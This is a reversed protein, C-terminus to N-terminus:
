PDFQLRRDGGGISAGVHCYMLRVAQVGGVRRSLCSGGHACYAGGDPGSRYIDVPLKQGPRWHNGIDDTISHLVIVQCEPVSAAHSTEALTLSALTFLTTVVKM